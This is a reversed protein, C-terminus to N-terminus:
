EAGGRENFDAITDVLKPRVWKKVSATEGHHAAEALVKVKHVM